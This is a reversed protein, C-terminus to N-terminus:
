MWLRERAFSRWEKYKSTLFTELLIEQLMIISDPHPSEIARKWFIYNSCPERSYFNGSIENSFHSYFNGSIENSFHISGDLPLFQCYTFEEFYLYFQSQFPASSTVVRFLKDVVDM